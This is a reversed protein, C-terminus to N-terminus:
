DRSERFRDVRRCGPSFDRHRSAATAVLTTWGDRSCGPADESSRPRVCVVTSEVRRSSPREGSGGWCGERGRKGQSWGGGGRSVSTERARQNTSGKVLLWGGEDAGHKEGEESANCRERERDMGGQARVRRRSKRWWRRALM